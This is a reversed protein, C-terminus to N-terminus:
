AKKGLVAEKAKKGAGGSGITSSKKGAKKAGKVADAKVPAVAKAAPAKPAEVSKRKAGKKEKEAAAAEAEKQALDFRGDLTAAWVPLLVSTSTKIGLSLINEWGGNQAAVAPPIAALLNELTQAASSSSLTAIRISIQTGTSPIMYTSAIAQALEKKLDKQKLNVPIPVKKSEYFIKGLLEPMLGMVREDALFLEHEKMLARRAEFPKFKGKLKKVGVVRSVFKIDSSALLDKYERQPDKVILCVSTTPPPPLPPHPLQIRVPMVKKKNSGTKLGVNLWIYEERPILETAEREKDAKAAHSLLATVAKTAQPRSFSAPLPLALSSTSPVPAPTSTTSAKSSKAAKPVKSAKSSAATASSATAPPM